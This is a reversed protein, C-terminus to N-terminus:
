LTKMLRLKDLWAVQLVCDAARADQPVAVAANHLWQLVRVGVLFALCCCLVAREGGGGKASMVSLLQLKHLWPRVWHQASIVLRSGAAALVRPRVGMSGVPCCKRHPSATSGERLWGEAEPQSVDCWACLPHEWHLVCSVCSCVPVSTAPTLLSM